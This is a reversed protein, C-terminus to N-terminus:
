WHFGLAAGAAQLKHKSGGIGAIRYDLNLSLTRSVRLEVGGGLHAGLELNAQGAPLGRAALEPPQAVGGVLPAGPGTPDERSFVLVVDIGADLYPRLRVDDLATITYKMGFPSAELLRLRTRVERRVGSADTLQFSDSEGESVALLIEYSLKGGPARL